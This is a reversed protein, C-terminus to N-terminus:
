QRGEHVQYQIKAATNGSLTDNYDHMVAVADLYAQEGGPLSSDSIIMLFPQNGRPLDDMNNGAFCVTMLKKALDPM